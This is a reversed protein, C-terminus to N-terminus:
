QKDFSKKGETWKSVNVTKRAITFERTGDGYTWESGPSDPCITSGSSFLYGVTGGLDDVRGVIWEGLSQSFWIATPVEDALIIYLRACVLM